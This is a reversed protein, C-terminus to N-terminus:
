PKGPKIFLAARAAAAAPNQLVGLPVLVVLLLLIALPLM